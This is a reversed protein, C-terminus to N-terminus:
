LVRAAKAHDLRLQEGSGLGSRIRRPLEKVLGALTPVTSENRHTAPRHLGPREARKEGIGQLSAAGVTGDLREQEPERIRDAGLCCRFRQQEAGLDHAEARESQQGQLREPFLEILMFEDNIQDASLLTRAANNAGQT